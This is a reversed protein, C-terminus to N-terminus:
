LEDENNFLDGHRRWPDKNPLWRRHGVYVTKSSGPDKPLQLFTPDDMCRVCNHGHCAQGAVYGYGLLYHVTYLLVATM